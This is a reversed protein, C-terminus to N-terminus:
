LKVRGYITSKAGAAENLKRNVYHYIMSEPVLKNNKLSSRLKYAKHMNTFTKNTGELIISGKKSRSINEFIFTTDRHKGSKFSIVGEVILKNSDIDVKKTKFSSVNSYIRKLYAETLKDYAKDDIDDIDDMVTANEDLDNYLDLSDLKHLPKTKPSMDADLDEDIVHSDLFKNLRNVFSPKDDCNEHLNGENDSISNLKARLRDALSNKELSENKPEEEPAEVEEEPIEEEEKPEDELTPEEEPAEVEEEPIEEEEKPEDELTPEEEPIDDMSIDDKVPMNNEIQEKTEDTLPALTEGPIDDENTFDVLVKDNNNSIQVQGDDTKIAVKNIDENVKRLAKRVSEELDADETTSVNDSEKKEAPADEKSIEEFPKIEGIVTYGCSTECIPCREEINALGSESDIIVNAPDKYFRSHCCQCELVVKGIYHDKLEEETHAEADIIPEEKVEEIDDAVFSSLDDIADKDATINFDDELLSLRKFAETLYNTEM